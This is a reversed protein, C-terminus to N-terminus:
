LTTLRSWTAGNCSFYHTGTVLKLNYLYTVKPSYTSTSGTRKVTGGLSNSGGGNLKVSGQAKLTKSYNNVKTKAATTGAYYYTVKFSTIINATKSSRTSMGTVYYKNGGSDKVTSTYSSAASVNVTICLSFITAFLLISKKFRIKM